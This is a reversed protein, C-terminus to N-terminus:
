RAHWSTEPRMALRLSSASSSSASHACITLDISTRVASRHAFWLSVKRARKGVVLASGYAPQLMVAIRASAALASVRRCSGVSTSSLTVRRKTRSARWPCSRRPAGRWARRWRSRWPTARPAAAACTRRACRPARRRRERRERRAHRAAREANRLADREHAVAEGVALLAHALHREGHDDVVPQRGLGDALVAVDEESSSSSSRSSSSGAASISTRASM